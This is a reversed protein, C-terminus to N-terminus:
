LGVYAWASAGNVLVVRKRKYVKTEYEDIKKLEDETVEVLFGHVEELDNSSIIPYVEGEIEVEGIKYGQLSDPAMEFLRNLVKRQIESRVLTGYIFLKEKNKM